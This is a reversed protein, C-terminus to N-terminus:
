DIWLGQSLRLDLERAQERLARLGMYTLTGAGAGVLAAAYHDRTAEGAAVSALGGVAGSLGGLVVDTGWTDLAKEVTATGNRHPDGNRCASEVSAVVMGLVVSFSIRSAVEEPTYFHQPPQYPVGVPQSTQITRASISQGQPLASPQWQVNM